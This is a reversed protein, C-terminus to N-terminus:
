KIDILVIGMKMMIVRAANSYGKLEEGLAEEQANAPSFALSGEATKPTPLDNM